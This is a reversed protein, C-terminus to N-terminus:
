VVVGYKVGNIVLKDGELKCSDKYEQMGKAIRFIIRLCDRIRKVHILFEDNAYIGTPLHKKNAMLLEKDEKSHFTISIPCNYNLHARGVRSCYAVDVMNAHITANEGESPKLTACITDLVRQKRIKYNKWPKETLGTLIVNNNLQNTELRTLRDQLKSCERQLHKNEEIIEKLKETNNEIKSM